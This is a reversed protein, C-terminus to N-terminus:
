LLFPGLFVEGLVNYLPVEFRFVAPFDAHLRSLNHKQNLIFVRVPDLDLSLVVFTQIM